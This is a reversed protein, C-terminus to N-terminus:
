MCLLYMVLCTNEIKLIVTMDVNMKVIYPAKGKM